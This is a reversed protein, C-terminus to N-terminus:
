FKQVPGKGIPGDGLPAPDPQESRTTAWQRRIAGTGVRSEGTGPSGLTRAAGGSAGPGTRM